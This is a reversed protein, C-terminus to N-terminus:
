HQIGIGIWDQVSETQYADIIPQGIYIKRRKDIICAGIAVGARLPMKCYTSAAVLSKVTMLFDIYKKQLELEEESTSPHIHLDASWIILSDSFITYDFAEKVAYEAAVEKGHRIQLRAHDILKKYNGHVWSLSHLRILEKFGLIDCLAVLRIAEKM